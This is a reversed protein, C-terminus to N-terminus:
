TADHAPCTVSRGVRSPPRPRRHNPLRSDTIAVQHSERPGHHHATVGALGSLHAGIADFAAITEGLFQPNQADPWTSFKAAVTQTGPNVYLM